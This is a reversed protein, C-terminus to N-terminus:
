FYDAPDEGVSVLYESLFYATDYDQIAGANHYIYEVFGGLSANGGWEWDVVGSRMVWDRADEFTQIRTSKGM